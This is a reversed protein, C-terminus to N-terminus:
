SVAQQALKALISGGVGVLVVSVIRRLVARPVAHAIRAGAWTGISLGVAILLGLKLDLVGVYANGATALAAIPLQIAQSLGIATLVPMDLWMLIPVLVLPGGTGTIASSFGTVAGIVALTPNAPTRDDGAHAEKTPLLSHAGSAATLLGILLELVRGPAASALLAGALAAPMAGTWLWAAMDWRISKHSAFVLTGIAGSVLFALMAAAIAAHIPVGMLYALAPVLIVGGIGICGIMVGSLIGLVGIGLLFAASM